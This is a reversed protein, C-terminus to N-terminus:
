RRRASCREHQVDALVTRIAEIREKLENARDYDEAAIAQDREREPKAAGGRAQPHRRAQGELAAGQASAQDILDIAKDPLFRDTIYRDLEVGRLRDVLVIVRVRHFAEYRDKLGTLIEIAM